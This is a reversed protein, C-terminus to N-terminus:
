SWVRNAAPICARSTRRGWRGVWFPDGGFVRTGLDIQASPNPSEDCRTFPGLFLNFGLASLENGLVSGVQQAMEPKWTAGIAM